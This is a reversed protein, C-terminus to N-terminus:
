ERKYKLLFEYNKIPSFVPLTDVKKCTRVQYRFCIICIHFITKMNQLKQYIEVQKMNCTETIITKWLFIARISSNVFNQQIHNVRYNVEKKRKIKEEGTEM